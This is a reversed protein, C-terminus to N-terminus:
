QRTVAHGCNPCIHPSDVLSLSRKRGYIQRIHGREILANMLRWVGSKSKLGRHDRIEDYSPAVNDHSIRARVYQLADAQIPTLGIASM